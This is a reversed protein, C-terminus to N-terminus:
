SALGLRDRAWYYRIGINMVPRRVAHWSISRIPTSPLAAPEEGSIHRALMRGLTTTIAIGRGNFGLLAYLGEEPNHFHPLHDLTLALQGSWTTEIPVGAVQPFLRPLGNILATTLSANEVDGVSGRGGVVLRGDPSLRYYFALKRTESVVVDAPLISERLTADIPATAVLVSQVPLVSAALGPLLGGSYANTAVVVNDARVTGRGTTIEWAQSTRKLGLAISSEFIRGGAVQFARALGRAYDLPQVAGARPYRWGGAYLTTGTRAAIQQADLIEVPVGRAQWQKARALVTPLARASHAGQIWGGRVPACDIRHREILDFVVDAAGGALAVIRTGREEGFHAILEDPDLKLGPIVQGGNRGSAGFGVHHAELVVTDIGAEALHLGTSLGTFGGGIIVVDAAIDTTLQPAAVAPERASRWWLADSYSDASLRM